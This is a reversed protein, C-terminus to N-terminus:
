YVILSRVPCHKIRSRGNLEKLEILFAAELITAGVKQLLL